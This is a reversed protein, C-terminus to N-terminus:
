TSPQRSALEDKLQESLRNAFAGQLTEDNWKSGATLTRFEVSYDAM